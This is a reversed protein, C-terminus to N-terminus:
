GSHTALSSQINRDFQTFLPNQILKADFHDASFQICDPHGLITAKEPSSNFLDAQFYRSRSKGVAKFLSGSNDVLNSKRGHNTGGVSKPSSSTSDSEVAFLKFFNGAASKLERGNVFDQDLFRDDAPLFKLEFDHAVQIVIDHDDAGDLIKVGHSHVRAIGNGDGGGLSQRVFLVLKHTIGGNGDDAFHAHLRTSRVNLEGNM